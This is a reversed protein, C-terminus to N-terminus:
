EGISGILADWPQEEEFPYGANEESTPFIVTALDALGSIERSCAFWLGKMIGLDYAGEGVGKAIQGPLEAFGFLTNGAGRLFKSSMPGLAAEGFNPDFCDYAYGEQWAYEADLPIGTDWNDEPNAAWFGVVDFIGSVTRGISHSIGRFFGCTVGIIANEDYEYSARNYGKITQAPLEIWGTLVNTLGRFLKKGMGELVNDTAGYAASSLLIISIFFALIVFKTKM